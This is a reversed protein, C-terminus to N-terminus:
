ASSSTPNSRHHLAPRRHPHQEPRAPRGAARRDDFLDPQFQRHLSRFQGVGRGQFGCPHCAAPDFQSLRRFAGLHHPRALSRRQRLHFQAPEHDDVPGAPRLRDRADASARLLGDGLRHDRPHRFQRQAFSRYPQFRAPQRNRGSQPHARRRGKLRAHIARRRRTSWRSGNRPARRTSCATPQRSSRRRMRRRTSRLAGNQPM